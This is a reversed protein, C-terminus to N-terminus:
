ATLEKWTDPLQYQSISEIGFGKKVWWYGFPYTTWKIGGKISFYSKMLEDEQAMLKDLASWYRRSVWNRERLTGLMQDMNFNIVKSNNRIRANTIRGTLSEPTLAGAETWGGRFLEIEPMNSAKVLDATGSNLQMWGRQPVNVWLDEHLAGVFKDLESTHVSYAKDAKAVDFKYLKLWGTDDGVSTKVTEYASQYLNRQSEFGTWDGTDVFKDLIRRMHRPDYYLDIVEGSGVPKVGYNYFQSFPNRTMWWVADFRTESDDIQNLWRAFQRGYDVYAQKAVPSNEGFQRAANDYITQAMQTNAEGARFFSRMDKVAEVFARKRELSKITDLYSDAGPSSMKAWWSQFGSTLAIPSDPSDGANTLSNFFDRHGYKDINTQMRAMRKNSLWSGPSQFTQRLKDFQKELASSLIGRRGTWGFLKRMQFWVTPGFNSVTMEGSMWSNFYKDFMSYTSLVCSSSTCNTALKAEFLDTKISNELLDSELRKAVKMDFNEKDEQEFGARLIENEEESFTTLSEGGDWVNQFSKYVNVFDAKIGAGSNRYKLNGGTLACDPDSWEKCRGARLTDEIVLGYAFPGEITNNLFHSMEWPEFKENPQEIIAAPPKEDKGIESKQEGLVRGPDTIVVKNQELTDRDTDAPADSGIERGVYGDQLLQKINQAEKETLASTECPKDSRYLEDASSGTENSSILTPEATSPLTSASSDTGEALPTGTEPPTGTDTGAGTDTGTGAPMGSDAGADSGSDAADQFLVPYAFVSELMLFIIFLCLLKMGTKGRWGADMGAVVMDVLQREM